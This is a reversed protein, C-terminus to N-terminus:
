PNEPRPEWEVIAKVLEIDEDTSNQFKFRHTRGTNVVDAFALSLKGADTGLLSVADATNYSDGGDVSTSVNLTAADRQRYWIWVRYVTAQNPIGAIFIDGTEILTEQDTGSDTTTSNDSKYILGDTKGAVLTAASSITFQGLAPLNDDFTHEKWEQRIIDYVYFSAPFTESDRPIGVWLLSTNPDFSVISNKLTAANFNANMDSAIADGIAFINNGNWEFVNLEGNRKGVFAHVETNTHENSYSDLAQTGVCGVSGDMLRYDFPDDAEGTAWVHYISTEKYVALIGTYTTAKEALPLIKVIDGPRAAIDFNGSGAGAFDDGDGVVSWRLRYKYRSGGEEINGAFLRDGYPAITRAELATANQDFLDGADPYKYFDDYNNTIWLLNDFECTDWVDAAGAASTLGDDVDTYASLDEELRLMETNSIVIKSRARTAAGSGEIYMYFQTCRLKDPAVSNSRIGFAYTNMLTQTWSASTIPDTAAVISKTVYGDAFRWNGTQGIYNDTSGNDDTCYFACKIFDTGGVEIAKCRAYFTVTDISSFGAVTTMTYYDYNTDATTEVYTTDDDATVEDVLAYNDSGASRTWEQQIDAVPYVTQNPPSDGHNFEVLLRVNGETGPTSSPGTTVLAPRRRAHGDRTYINKLENHSRETTGQLFNLGGNLPIETYQRPM